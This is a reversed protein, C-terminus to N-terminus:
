ESDGGEEGQKEREGGTEEEGGYGETVEQRKTKGEESEGREDSGEGEKQEGAVEGPTTMVVRGLEVGGVEAAGGATGTANAIVGM